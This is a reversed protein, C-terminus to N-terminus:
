KNTHKKQKKKMLIDSVDNAIGIPALDTKNPCALNEVNRVELGDPINKPDSYQL